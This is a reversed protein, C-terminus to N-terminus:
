APVFVGDRLVPVARGVDLEAAIEVDDAWGADILERGSACDRLATALEGAVEAFGAAATRAEPSVSPWGGDILLGILAGAGWLDEVAPRLGGDPWREGACIAAVRLGPRRDLLWRAVVRRNRLSVAVVVPVQGALQASIASGNPSPLLLRDLGAADRVGRPSLSVQGPGAGSRGVVLTAGAAAAARRAGDADDWPYPLVGIGRDAAVTVTTTFSLVDVVVAVDCRGAVAAAGTAGWDLRLAAGAQRHADLVPVVSRRGPPSAPEPLTPAKGM